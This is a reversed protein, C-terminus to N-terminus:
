LYMVLKRTDGKKYAGTETFEPRVSTKQQDKDKNLTNADTSLCHPM